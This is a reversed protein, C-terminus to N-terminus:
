IVFLTSSFSLSLGFFWFTLLVIVCSWTDDRIVTSADDFASLNQNGQYPIFVQPHEPEPHPFRHQLQDRDRYHEEQRVQSSSSSSAENGSSERHIASSSPATSTSQDPEAMRSLFFSSLLSHSNWLLLLSFSIWVWARARVRPIPPLSPAGQRRQISVDMSRSRCRSLSFSLGEGILRTRRLFPLQSSHRNDPPQHWDHPERRDMNLFKVL